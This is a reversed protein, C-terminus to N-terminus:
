YTSGNQVKRGKKGAKMQPITFKKAEAQMQAVIKAEQEPTLKQGEPQASPKAAPNQARTVSPALILISSFLLCTLM